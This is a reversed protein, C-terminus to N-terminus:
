QVPTGKKGRAPVIADADADAAQASRGADVALAKKGRAPVIADGVRMPISTRGPGLPTATRGPSVPQSVRITTPYLAAGTAFLGSYLFLAAARNNAEFGTEAADVMPGRWPSGVNMASMRKQRTDLAM